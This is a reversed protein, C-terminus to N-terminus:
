GRVTGGETIFTVGPWTVFIVTSYNTGGYPKEGMGPLFRHLSRM